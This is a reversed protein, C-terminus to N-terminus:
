GNRGKLCMRIWVQIGFKSIHEAEFLRLLLFVAVCFALLCLPMLMLISTANISLYTCHRQYTHEIAHRLHVCKRRCRLNPFYHQGCDMRHNFNQRLM